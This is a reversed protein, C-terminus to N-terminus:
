WMRYIIPSPEVQQEYLEESPQAILDALERFGIGFTKTDGAGAFLVHREQNIGRSTVREFKLLGDAREMVDFKVKRHKERSNSCGPLVSTSAWTGPRGM